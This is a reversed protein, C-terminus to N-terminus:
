VPSEGKAPHQGEPLALPGLRRAFRPIGAPGRHFELLQKISSRILEDESTGAERAMDALESRLKDDLSITITAM